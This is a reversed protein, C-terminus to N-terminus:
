RAARAGPPRNPVVRGRRGPPHADAAAKLAARTNGARGDVRTRGLRDVLVERVYASAVAQYDAVNHGLVRLVSHPAVTGEVLTGLRGRVSVRRLRSDRRGFCTRGRTRGGTVRLGRRRCLSDLRRAPVLRRRGTLRRGARVGSEERRTRRRHGIRRGRRDGPGGSTHLGRRTRLRRLLRRVSATGKGTGGRFGSRGVLRGAERPRGGSRPRFAAGIGGAICGTGAGAARRRGTTRDRHPARRGAARCWRTVRMRANGWIGIGAGGSRVVARGM